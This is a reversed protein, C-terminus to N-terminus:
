PVSVIAGTALITPGPFLHTVAAFSSTDLRTATSRGAPGLSTMTIASSVASGASHAASRSAWASCPGSPSDTRTVVLASTASATAARVPPM